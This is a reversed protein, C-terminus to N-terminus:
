SRIVFDLWENLNRTSTELKLLEPINFTQTHIKEKEDVYGVVMFRLPSGGIFQVIKNSFFYGKSNQPLPYIINSRFQLHLGIISIEKSIELYTKLRIWASNIEEGPRDDDQYVKLGNSLTAVWRAKEEIFEDPTTCLKFSPM